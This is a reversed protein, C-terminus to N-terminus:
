NIFLTLHCFMVWDDEVSSILQNNTDAAFPVGVVSQKGVLQHMCPVCLFHWVRKQSAPHKSIKLLPPNVNAGQNNKKKCSM